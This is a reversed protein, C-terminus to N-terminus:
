DFSRNMELWSHRARGAMGMLDENGEKSNVYSIVSSSKVFLKYIVYVLVAGLVFSWLNSLMGAAM